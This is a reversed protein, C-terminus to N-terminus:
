IPSSRRTEVGTLAVQRDDGAKVPALFSNRLRPELLPLMARVKRSLNKRDAHALYVLQPATSWEPLVHVVQGASLDDRVAAAPILAIGAALSALHRIASLANSSIRARIEIKAKQGGVSMLEWIVAGTADTETSVSLCNHDALDRPHRIPPSRDIYDPSAILIFRSTGLSVTSLSSPKAQGVRIAIDFGESILDIVRETLLFQMRVQPFRQLYDTVATSISSLDFDVPATIRLLGTPQSQSSSAEEGAEMLAAVAREAKQFFKSGADTLHLKRTTRVLLRVGLTKELDSIRDSVSSNPLRLARAAKTFSGLQAVRVFIFAGNLDM